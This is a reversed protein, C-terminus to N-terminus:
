APIGLEEDTWEKPNPYVYHGYIHEPETWLHWLFWWWALGMGLEAGFELKPNAPAGARYYWNHSHRTVQQVKNRLVINNSLLKAAKLAPMARSVIM